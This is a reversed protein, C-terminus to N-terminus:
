DCPVINVTRWDAVAHDADVLILVDKHRGGGVLRKVRGEAEQENYCEGEVQQHPCGSLM